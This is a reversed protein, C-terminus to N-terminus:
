QERRYPKNAKYLEHRQQWRPKDVNNDRATALTLTSWELAKKFDGLEAYAAAMAALTPLHDEGARSMSMQAFTLANAGSRLKDNPSTALIEAIATNVENDYRADQTALSLEAVAEWDRGARYHAFGQVSHPGRIKPCLEVARQARTIAEDYRGEALDIRALELHAQPDDDDEALRAQWYALSEAPTATAAPPPPTDLRRVRVHAVRLEGAYEERTGGDSRHGPVGFSLTADARLKAALPGARWEDDLSYEYAQDWLKVRLRRRGVTELDFKDALMDLKEAPYILKERRIIPGDAWRKSMNAQMGFLPQRFDWDTPSPGFSGCWHIGVAQPYPPPDLVELDAEIVLPPRFGALARIRLQPTVAKRCSLRVAGAEEEIVWHDASAEWGLLESDFTLDVWKGSSYDRLQELMRQAHRYFLKAQPEVATSELAAIEAECEAVASIPAQRDWSWRLKDALALVRSGNAGQAALRLGLDFAGTRGKTQLQPLDVKDGLDRFEVTAEASLDSLELLSALRTRNWPDDYFLPRDPHTKRYANRRAIFARLLAQVGDVQGLTQDPGLEDEQIAEAIGLSMSPIATGFRDTEVCRQGLEM